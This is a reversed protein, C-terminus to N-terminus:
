APLIRGADRYWIQLLYTLKNKFFYLPDWIKSIPNRSSPWAWNPTTKHDMRLLPVNEIDTGFKL